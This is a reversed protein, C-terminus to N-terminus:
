GVAGMLLSLLRSLPIKIPTADDVSLDLDVVYKAAKIFVRQSALSGHCEVTVRAFLLGAERWAVGCDQHNVPAKLVMKSRHM